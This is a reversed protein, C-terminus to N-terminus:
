QAPTRLADSKAALRAKFEEETEAPRAPAESPEGINRMAKARAVSQIGLDTLDEGQGPVHPEATQIKEAQSRLRALLPDPAEGPMPLPRAEAAAETPRAIRTVVSEPVEGHFNYWNPGNPGPQVSFGPAESLNGTVIEQPSGETEERYPAIRDTAEAQSATAMARGPKYPIGEEGVNRARFYRIGQATESPSPITGSNGLKTEAPAAAKAKPGVYEDMGGAFPKNETTADLTKRPQFKPEDVGGAFPKNEGTLDPEPLARSAPPAEGYPVRAIQPVEKPATGVNPAFREYGPSPPAGPPKLGFDRGPVKVHLAAAEDAPTGLHALERVPLLKQNLATEAGRAALRLPATAIPSERLARLGSPVDEGLKGYVAGGATSGLGAGLAEPLVSLAGKPTVKGGAYDEGAEIAQKVGMRSVFRQGPSLGVEGLESPDTIAHYVQGPTETIARGAAQGGSVLFRAVPGLIPHGQAWAETISQDQALQDPPETKAPAATKTGFKAWPGEKAAPEAAPAAKAYKEWPAAAPGSMKTGVERAMAPQVDAAAPNSIDEPLEGRWNERRFSVGQPLRTIPINPESDDHLQIHDPNPFVRGGFDPPAGDNAEALGAAQLQSPSLQKYEEDTLPRSRQDPPLKQYDQWNITRTAM